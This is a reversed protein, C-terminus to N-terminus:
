FVLNHDKCIKFIKKTQHKKLKIFRSIEKLSNSGDAYQLFNLIKQRLGHKLVNKNSLNSITYTLKRKSLHPECVYKARPNNLKKEVLKKTKEKNMLLM